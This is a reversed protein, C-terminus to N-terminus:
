QRRDREIHRYLGIIFLSPRRSPCRSLLFSFRIISIECNRPRNRGATFSGISASSTQICGGYLAGTDFECGQERTLSELVRWAGLRWERAALCCNANVPSLNGIKSVGLTTWRMVLRAWINSKKTHLREHRCLLDLGHSLLPRYCFRLYNECSPRPIQSRLVM